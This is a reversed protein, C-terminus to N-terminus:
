AAPPELEDFVARLAQAAATWSFRQARELGARQFRQHLAGDQALSQIAAAIAAPDRPDVYLAADGGVEALSAIRSAVVPTGCAMAELLPLGFGEALSVFALLTAAGLLAPLDPEPVVGLFHVASGDREATQRLEERHHSNRPYGAVVLPLPIGAHNLLAVAQLLRPLNKRPEIVGLSLIFREPLGYRERVAARAAAAGPQFEPGVAEPILRIRGPDIRLIRVVEEATARSVVVVRDARRTVARLMGRFYAVRGYPLYRAHTFPTLDHITVVQRTTKWLPLAQAPGWLVTARERRLDAPLVTQEWLLRPDRQAPGSKVRRAGWARWDGMLERASYILFREPEQRLLERVMAGIYRGFGYQESRMALTNIAVSL